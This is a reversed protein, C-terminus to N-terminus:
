KWGDEVSKKSFVTVASKSLNAKLKWYRRAVDILKHLSEAVM